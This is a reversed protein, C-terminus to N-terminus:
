VPTRLAGYDFRRFLLILMALPVGVDAGETLRLEGQPVVPKGSYPSKQAFLSALGSGRRPSLAAGIRKGDRILDLDSDFFARIRRGIGEGKRASPPVLDFLLNKEADLVPFPRYTAASRMFGVRLRALVPGMEGRRLRISFGKRAITYDPQGRGDVLFTTPLTPQSKISAQLYVSDGDAGELHFWDGSRLLRYRTKM